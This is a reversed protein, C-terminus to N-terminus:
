GLLERIIRELTERDQFNVLHRVIKRERDFFFLTPYVNVNGFAERTPVDLNLNPFLMGKRKLDAARGANDIGIGLLEDANMGIMQFGRGRFEEDLEVLIPAIRVCPPCGTFWFYVLGPGRIKESQFESGSFDTLRFSPLPDGEWDIMRVASGRSELFQEIRDVNLSAIEGSAGDREFLNPMRADMEMVRLLLEVSSASIGFGEGIEQRTPIRGTAEFESKLYGPVAFFSEYLRGLFARQEASFEESNYLDSFTVRGHQQLMSQVKSLVEREIAPQGAQVSTAALFFTLLLFNKMVDTIGSTSRNIAPRCARQM